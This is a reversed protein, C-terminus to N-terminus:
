RKRKTERHGEETPSGAMLGIVLVVFVLLYVIIEAMADSM